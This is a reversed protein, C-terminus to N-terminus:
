RILVFGRLSRTLMKTKDKHVLKRREWWLYWTTIAIMEHINLIGLITLERKPMSLLFELVAEGVYYVECARRTFQDLGSM